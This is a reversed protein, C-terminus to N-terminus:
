LKPSDKDEIKPEVFGASKNFDKVYSLYEKYYELPKNWRSQDPVIRSPKSIIQKQKTV